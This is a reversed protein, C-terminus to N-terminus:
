DCIRAIDYAARSSASITLDIVSRREGQQPRFHTSSLILVEESLLHHIGEWDSSPFILIEPDSVTFRVKEVDSKNKLSFDRDVAQDLLGSGIGSIHDKWPVLLSKSASRIVAVYATM